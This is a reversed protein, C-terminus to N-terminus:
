RFLINVFKCIRIIDEGEWRPQDPVVRCLNVSVSNADDAGVANNGTDHVKNSGFFPQRGFVTPRTTGGDLDRKNHRWHKDYRMGFLVVFYEVLALFVFLTCSILWVEICKLELASPSNNRCLTRARVTRNVDATYCM